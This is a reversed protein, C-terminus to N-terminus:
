AEQMEIFLFHSDNIAVIDLSNEKTIEMADGHTLEIGNINSSGEIQIFYIQRNDKIKFELSKTSELQSVYMNIDQHIKVKSTGEQSTVINLLTNKTEEEKYREQGYIPKVNKEPPIIWMQLLRLEEDGKNHESHLIGTGASLYQVEGRRLTEENGMSDKHSIEGKVVYSIIEMDNHPHTGFGTHPNIIDHFCRNTM